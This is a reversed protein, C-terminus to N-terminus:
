LGGTPARLELLGMLPTENPDRERPFYHCQSAFVGVELYHLLM